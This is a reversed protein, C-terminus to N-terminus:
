AEKISKYSTSYFTVYKKISNTYEVENVEYYESDDLDYYVVIAEPDFGKLKEIFEKVKM